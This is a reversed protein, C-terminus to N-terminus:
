GEDTERAGAAEDGAGQLWFEADQVHTGGVVLDFILDAIV